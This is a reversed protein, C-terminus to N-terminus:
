SRAVPEAVGTVADARVRAAHELLEEAHGRARESGPMGALMRSLEAIRAEGDVREVSAATRGDVALKEIRYQTEAFVAVQPLHTVVMVQRGSREALEALAAGVARAAAGGVGADVEDFVMTRASGHSGALALALGLRSLEGGSAVKRLPRLEEGPNFSVIYEVLELGGEYLEVPELKVEFVAGELALTHLRAEVEPALRAAAKTRTATLAHGLTLARERAAALQQEADSIGEELAELEIARQRASELYRLVEDEDSGYKRRLRTLDSIREQTAELADPDPPAASRALEAAVDAVEYSASELRAALPELAPDTGVLARLEAAASSLLDSAGPEDSLHSTARNLGSAIAEAHEFRRAESVLRDMEGPAPAAGEIESIEYRLVDLARNRDRESGRLEALKDTWTAVARVAHRVEAALTVSEPGAWEDLHDRQWARAGIQQHEHQGAVEVLLRGVDALLATTVLRGNARAKGGRGSASVTRVVVLEVEDDPSDDLVGESLLLAVAPHDKPVAYRGEVRAEDAGSRVVDRDSRAGLLLGLALVLLTKGAGTEGTLAICGSEFSVEARDIVGLNEVTLEILM